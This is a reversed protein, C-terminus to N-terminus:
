TNSRWQPLEKVQALYAKIAEVIIQQNIQRPKTRMGRRKLQFYLEPDRKVTLTM